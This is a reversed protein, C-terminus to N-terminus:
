GNLPKLCFPSNQPLSARPLLFLFSAVERYPFPAEAVMAEPLPLTCGQASPGLCSNRHPPETLAGDRCDTLFAGFLENRTLVERPFDCKTLRNLETNSQKERKTKKQKEQTKLLTSNLPELRSEAMHIASFSSGPDGKPGLHSLLATGLRIWRPASLPSLSLTWLLHIHYLVGGRLEVGM